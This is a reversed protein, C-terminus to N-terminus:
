LKPVLKSGRQANNALLLMTFDKSINKKRGLHGASPVPHALKLVQERCNHPLVLQKICTGSRHRPTWQRFLLGDPETIFPRESLRRISDDVKQTHLLDERSLPLVLEVRQPKRQDKARIM